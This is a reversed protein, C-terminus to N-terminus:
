VRNKFREGASIEGKFKNAVWSFVGKIGASNNPYNSEFTAGSFRFNRYKAFAPDSNEDYDNEYYPEEMYENPVPYNAQPQRQPQPQRAEEYQQHVVEQQPNFHMNMAHQMVEGKGRSELGGEGALEEGQRAGCWM